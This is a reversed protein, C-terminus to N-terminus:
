HSSLLCLSTLISFLFSDKAALYALLLKSCMTFTNLHGYLMDERGSGVKAMDEGEVMQM